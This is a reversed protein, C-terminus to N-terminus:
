FTPCFVRPGSSFRSAGANFDSVVYSVLTSSPRPFVADRRREEPMEVYAVNRIEFVGTEQPNGAGKAKRDVNLSVAKIPLRLVGDNKGGWHAGWGYGVDAEFHTWQGPTKVVAHKHFSQGDDGKVGVSVNQREGVRADFVIKEAWVPEVLKFDVGVGHGGNSFDYNVTYVGGTESMSGAAGKHEPHANFRAEALPFPALRGDALAVMGVLAVAAAITPKM